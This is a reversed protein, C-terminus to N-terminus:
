TDCSMKTINWRTQLTGGLKPRIAAYASRVVSTVTTARKASIERVPLLLAGSHERKPHRVDKPHLDGLQHMGNDPQESHVREILKM